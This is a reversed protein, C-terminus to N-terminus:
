FPISEDDFPNDPDQAPQAAKAAPAEVVKEQAKGFSGNRVNEKFRIAMQVFEYGLREVQDLKAGEGLIAVANNLAMGCTIGLEYDSLGSKNDDSTTDKRPAFGGGSPRSAQPKSAAPPEVVQGGKEIAKWNWYNGDFEQHVTFVDGKSLSELAVRLATQAPHALSKGAFTKTKVETKSQYTREYVLECGEYHGDKNAYKIQANMDIMKVKFVETKKDGANSM